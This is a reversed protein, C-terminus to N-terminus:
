SYRLLSLIKIASSDDNGIWLINICIIHMLKYYARELVFEAFPLNPREM